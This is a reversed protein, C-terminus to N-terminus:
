NKDSKDQNRNSAPGFWYVCGYIVGAVLLIFLIDAFNM